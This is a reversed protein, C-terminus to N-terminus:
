PTWIMSQGQEIQPDVVEDDPVWLSRGGSSAHAEDTRELALPTPADRHILGAAYLLRYTAEAIGPTNIHETRIEDLVRQATPSDGLQIAIELDLLAWEATPRNKSKAWERAKSVWDQAKALNPEVRALKRFADTLDTHKDHTPRSVLESAMVLSALDAGTLTARQLLQLLQDDSLKALDLRPVRVISIKELDVTSPDIVDGPPLGLKARVEDFLELETPEVAAQEIILLSALLPIRMAADSKVEWPSKGDLAARPALTWRDSIAERREENVLKRRQDIPTGTPLRWRWSLSEVTHSKEAVVVEELIAGLADGAVEALVNKVTEFKTDRDTTLELQASRDTRKGYLSLFGLVRPIQDRTLDPSAPPTPRDLLIHTSRPPIPEEDSSSPEIPYVEIRKDSILRESLEDENTVEYAIRVTEFGPDVLQPDVLQAIAEAEVLQYEPAELRAFEHMGAAFGETDGLWGRVLALNYVIAPEPGVKDRLSAFIEKAVRWQGRNSAKIAHDFEVKWKADAPADRLLLYERILLPLGAEFNMRLLLEVAHNNGEPAIGAYLLLHGRASILEGELLLAHGVAGIAEFVRLPMDNELLELADQLPGIASTGKDTAAILIAKQAHAAPNKSHRALHHDITKRAAEFDHLSLELNARLDLLSARDPQKELLKEVHTLAAHPQEGSIMKQVKEIEPALDSCCFKLKKGSGCPCPAYPDLAM